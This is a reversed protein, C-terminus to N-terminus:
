PGAAILELGPDIGDRVRIVGGEGIQASGGPPLPQQVVRRGHLRDEVCAVVIRQGSQHGVEAAVVHFSQDFRELRRLVVDRGQEDSIRDLALPQRECAVLVIMGAQHVGALDCRKALLHPDRFPLFPLGIRAEAAIGGRRHLRQDFVAAYGLGLAFPGPVGRFHRRDSRGRALLLRGLRREALDQEIQGAGPPSRADRITVVEGSTVTEVL